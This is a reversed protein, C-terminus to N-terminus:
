AIVLVFLELLAHTIPLFSGHLPFDNPYKKFLLIQKSLLLEVCSLTALYFVM